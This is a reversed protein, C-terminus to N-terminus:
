VQIKDQWITLSPIFPSVSPYNCSTELKLVCTSWPLERKRHLIHSIVQVWIEHCNLEAGHHMAALMMLLQVARLEFPLCGLSACRSSLSGSRCNLPCFPLVKKKKKKKTLLRQLVPFFDGWNYNNWTEAASMQTGECNQKPFFCSYSELTVKASHSKRKFTLRSSIFMQIISYTKWSPYHSLLHCLM